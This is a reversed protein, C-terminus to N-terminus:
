WTLAASILLVIGAVAFQSVPSIQFGGLERVAAYVMGYQPLHWIVSALLSAIGWAWALAPNLETRFRHFPPKDSSLASYAASSLVVVGILMAVPNVWLLGYGYNAGAQISSIATGSGLTYASLLWGPGGKKAGEVLGCVLGGGKTAEM